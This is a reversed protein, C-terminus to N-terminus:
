KFRESASKVAEDIIEWAGQLGIKLDQWASDGAQQFENLKHRAEERRERLDSITDQYKIRLDAEAGKAKAELRSMEAGIEDLKAKMKQIYEERTSM